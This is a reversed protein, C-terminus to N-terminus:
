TFVILALDSKFDAAPQTKFVIFLPRMLVALRKKKIVVNITHTGKDTLEPEHTSVLSFKFFSTREKEWTRPIM